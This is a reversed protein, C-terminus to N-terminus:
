VNQIVKRLASQEIIWMAVVLLNPHLAQTQFMELLHYEQGELIYSHDDVCSENTHFEPYRQSCDSRLCYPGLWKKMNIAPIHNAGFVVEDM